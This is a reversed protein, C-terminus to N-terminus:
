GMAEEMEDERQRAERERRNREFSTEWPLGPHSVRAARQVPEQFTFDGEAGKELARRFEPEKLAVYGSVWFSSSKQPSTAGSEAFTDGFLSGLARRYIVCLAYVDWTRWGDLLDTAAARWTQGRLGAAYAEAAAVIAATQAAPYHGEAFM